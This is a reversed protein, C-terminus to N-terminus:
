AQIDVLQPQVGVLTGISMLAFCSTSMTQSAGFPMAAFRVQMLNGVIYGAAINSRRNSFVQHHLFDHALWGSQQWFGALLLASVAQLLISQASSALMYISAALLALIQLLRGPM